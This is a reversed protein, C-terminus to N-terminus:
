SAFPCSRGIAFRPLAKIPLRLTVIPTVGSECFPDLVINGKRSYHNIYESVFNDPKRAWFKHMLYMHTHPKPVLAHNIHPFPQQPM